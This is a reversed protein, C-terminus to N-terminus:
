RWKERRGCGKERWDRKQSRREKGKKDNKKKEGKEKITCYLNLVV